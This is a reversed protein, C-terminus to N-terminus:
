RSDLRTLVAVERLMSSLTILSGAVWSAALKMGRVELTVSLIVETIKEVIRDM